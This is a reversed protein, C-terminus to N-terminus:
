GRAEGGGPRTEAHITPEESAGGTIDHFRRKLDATFGTYLQGNGMQLIYVYYM